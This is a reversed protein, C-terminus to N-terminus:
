DDTSPDPSARSARDMNEGLIRGLADALPLTEVGAESFTSVHSLVTDLDTVNFFTKMTNDSDYLAWWNLHFTPWVGNVIRVGRKHQMDVRCKFGFSRKRESISVMRLAFFSFYICSFWRIYFLLFSNGPTM